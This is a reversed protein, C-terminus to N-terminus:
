ATDTQKSDSSELFRVLADFQSQAKGTPDVISYSFYHRVNDATIATNIPDYTAGDKGGATHGMTRTLAIMSIAAAAEPNGSAVAKDYLAKESDSLLAFSNVFGMTKQDYDIEEATLPINHNNKYLHAALKPDNAQMYAVDEPTRSMPDKAKITALKADTERSPNSTSAASAALADRAAQSITVSDATDTQTTDLVQRAFYKGATAPIPFRAHSVSPISSM